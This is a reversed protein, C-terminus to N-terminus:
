LQVGTERAVTALPEILEQPRRVVLDLQQLGIRDRIRARLRLIDRFVLKDSVIMLDIDGGRAADNVRSGYLYIEASPDLGRVEERIVKLEKASLRM